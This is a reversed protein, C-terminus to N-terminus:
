QLFIIWKYGGDHAHSMRKYMAIYMGFKTSYIKHYSLACYNSFIVKDTSAEKHGIFCSSTLKTIKKNV